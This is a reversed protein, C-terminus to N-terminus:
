NGYFNKSGKIKFNLEQKTWISVMFHRKTGKKEQAEIDREINEKIQLIIESPEKVAEIDREINEKLQLIGDLNQQSIFVISFIKGQQNLRNHTM